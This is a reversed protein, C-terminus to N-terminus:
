NPLLGIEQFQQADPIQLLHGQVFIRALNISNPM